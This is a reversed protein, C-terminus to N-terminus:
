FSIQAERSPMNQQLKDLLNQWPSGNLGDIAEFCRALVDIQSPDLGLTLRITSCEESFIMTFNPHYFGLSPRYFIPHGTEMCNLYLSGGVLAPGRIQHLPGSIKIDLFAPDAGPEVPVIRYNNNAKFLRAPVRNLLARTNDFIQKRYLELQPAASQYALCFWNLSLRDAQLVPDTLLADFSAWKSDRNHLMYFPAGSYNDMGFLDFKLGSRYCVINLAGREIEEQFEALLHEVRPSNIFDLTCDLALTLPKENRGNLSRHLAEAIKEVRYETPNLDVRKLVPNFQALILDAEKWDEESAEDISVANSARKAANICEYYTNEGFLVRPTKGLMKEVAKFIGTLSTMGSSHVGYSALPALRHPISTLVDRYIIPFDDPKFPSFIELLSSLNAHIQEIHSATDFFLVGEKEENLLKLQEKIRLFSIKAISSRTPCQVVKDWREGSLSTLLGKLLQLTGQIMLSKQPHNSNPDFANLFAMFEERSLFEIPISLANGVPTNLPLPWRDLEVRNASLGFNSIWDVLFRDHQQTEEVTSATFPLLQIGGIEEQQVQHICLVQKLNLNQKKCAKSFSAEYANWASLWKEPDKPFIPTLDVIVPADKIKLKSAVREVIAPISGECSIYSPLYDHLDFPRTLVLPYHHPYPLTQKWAEMRNKYTQSFGVSPSRSYCSTTEPHVQVSVGFCPCVWNIVSSFFGTAKALWRKELFLILKKAEQSEAPIQSLVTKNMHWSCESLPIKNFFSFPSRKFMQTFSHQAAASCVHSLLLCENGITSAWPSILCLGWGLRALFFASGLITGAACYLAKEYLKHVVIQITQPPESAAPLISLHLVSPLDDPESTEICSISLLIIFFLIIKIRV